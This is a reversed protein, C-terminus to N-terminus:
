EGPEEGSGTHGSFDALAEGFMSRLEGVTVMLDPDPDNPLGEPTVDQLRRLVLGCLSAVEERAVGRAIDYMDERWESREDPDM